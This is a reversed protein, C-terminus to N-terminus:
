RQIDKYPDTLWVRYREWIVSALLLLIGIGVGSTALKELLFAESNLYLYIGYAAWVLSGVILLVWGLPRTLNRNVANWISGNSGDNLKLTQLDDKMARYVALERRLETSSEVSREIRNREEPGVESDLYRMLEENTVRDAM